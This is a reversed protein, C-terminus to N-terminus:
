VKGTEEGATPISDYIDRSLVGLAVSEFAKDDMYRTVIKDNEGMRQIMLDEILKRLELQFKDFSNDQLLQVFRDVM